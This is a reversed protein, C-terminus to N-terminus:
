IRQGDGRFRGFTVEWDQGVESELRGIRHLSHRYFQRRYTLRCIDGNRCRIAIALLLILYVCGSRQGRICPQIGDCDIARQQRIKRRRLHVIRDVELGKSIRGDTVM